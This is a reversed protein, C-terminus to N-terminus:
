NGKKPLLLTTLSRIILRKNIRIIFLLNKLLSNSIEPFRSILLLIISNKCWCILQSKGGKKEERWRRFKFCYILIEFYLFKRMDVLHLVSATWIRDLYLEFMDVCFYFFLSFSIFTRYLDCNSYIQSLKTIKWVIDCLFSSFATWTSAVACIFQIENSPFKLLNFNNEVLSRRRYFFHRILKELDWLRFLRKLALSLRKFFLKLCM